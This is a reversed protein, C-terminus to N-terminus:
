KMYIYFNWKYQLFLKVDDRKNLLNYNYQMKHLTIM